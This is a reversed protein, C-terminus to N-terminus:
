RYIPKGHGVKLVLIFLRRDEVSYIIRLVGTRVRYIDEYGRVKRCGRPRPDVALQGIADAVRRKDKKGLRKIQREAMASVEIRYDIM